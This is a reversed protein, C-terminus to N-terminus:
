QSQHWYHSYIQEIPNRLCVILKVDPLLRQIRPPARESQLYITSIEGRAKIMESCRFHKKYDKICNADFDDYDFSNIEKRPPVYVEPHATLNRALWTTGSKAAGIGIFDPLENDTM